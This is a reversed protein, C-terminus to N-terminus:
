SSCYGALCLTFFWRVRSKRKQVQHDM